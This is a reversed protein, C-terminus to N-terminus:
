EGKPPRKLLVRRDQVRRTIGLSDFHELLPLAYKRSTGSADRVTAVSIEGAIGGLLEWFRGEVGRSLFFTEALIRGEGSEKAM